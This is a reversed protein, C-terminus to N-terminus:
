NESVNPISKEHIIIALMFDIIQVIYPHMIRFLNPLLLTFNYRLTIAVSCHQFALVKILNKRGPGLKAGRPELIVQALPLM